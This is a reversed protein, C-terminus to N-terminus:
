QQPPERGVIAMAGNRDEMAQLRQRRAACDICDIECVIALMGDIPWLYWLNYLYPWVYQIPPAIQSLRYETIHM